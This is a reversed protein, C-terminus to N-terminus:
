RGGSSGSMALLPCGARRLMITVPSLTGARPRGPHNSMGGEWSADFVADVARAADAPTLNAVEAVSAVLDKKNMGNAVSLPALCCVALVTIAMISRM